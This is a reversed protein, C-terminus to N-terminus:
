YYIYNNSSNVQGNFVRQTVRDLPDFSYTIDNIQPPNNTNTASVYANFTSKKILKDSADAYFFLGYNKYATTSKKDTYYEYSIRWVDTNDSFTTRISDLSKKTYYYNETTIVGTAINTGITKLVQKNANYSYITESLFTANSSITRKHILGDANLEYLTTSVLNTNYYKETATNGSYSYEYKYITGDNKLLRGNADYTYTRVNSGDVRADTKIKYVIEPATPTDTENKKCSFLIALLLVLITVKKM